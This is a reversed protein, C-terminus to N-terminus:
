WFLEERPVHCRSSTLGPGLGWWCQNQKNCRRSSCCKGHTKNLQKIKWGGRKKFQQTVNNYDILGNRKGSCLYNCNWLLYLSKEPFTQLMCSITKFTSHSEMLIFLAIYIPSILKFNNQQKSFPEIYKPCWFWSELLPVALNFSTIKRGRPQFNSRLYFSCIWPFFNFQQNTEGYSAMCWRKIAHFQGPLTYWCVREGEGRKRMCEKRVTNYLYKEQAQIPFIELLYTHESYMQWIPALETTLSLCDELWQHQFLFM